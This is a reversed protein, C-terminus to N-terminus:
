RVPPQAEPPLRDVDGRVRVLTATECTMGALVALILSIGIVRTDLGLVRGGM